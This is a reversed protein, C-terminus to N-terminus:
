QKIINIIQRAIESPSESGDSTFESTEPHEFPDSIGTFNKIEGSRAKIYLGKRDRKECVNLPTDMFVEFYRGVSSISQRNYERDSHYPAINACIVIGRHKVIEYAIYGIRRVNTSRDQRSFGLGKSLNRRVIDGDLITIPKTTKEQIFQKLHVALTSKGSASLGIIYICLGDGYTERLERIVAPPSFWSPIDEKERLRRRLETGSIRKLQMEPTVEDETVYKGSIADYSIMPSTIIEIGIDLSQALKQSDYPGYFPEGDVTQSSPGAHDRGIIFHTCGYNKRILAHWVAERPGAMRMSLPLLSLMVRTDKYIDLIHQYCKIRAAYDVDCEQTVGVIPQILLLSKPDTKKICRKTLEIHCQHMPNRTQFGVITEGNEKFFNRTYEPSLRLSPFNIFLPSKDIGKDKVTGGIYWVKGKKSQWKQIESVYPHNSDNTGYVMKCEYDLDPKWSQTRIVSAVYNGYRDFLQFPPIKMLDIGDRVIVPLVIPMPWITKGDSLTMNNVVSDYDEPNMFGTLPAFSGDIICKLDCLVRDTLTIEFTKEDIDCM